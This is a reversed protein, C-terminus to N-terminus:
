RRSTRGTSRTSPSASPDPSTSRCATWACRSPWRPSCAGQWWNHRPPATCAPRSSLSNTAAWDGSSERPRSRAPWGTPWRWWCATAWRMGSRTTSTSSGSEPSGTVALDAFRVQLARRNALGTLPDIRAARARDASLRAMRQVAYLPVFILLVFAANVHAAVALVPSLLLLSAKFLTQYPLTETVRRSRAAGLRLRAAIRVMLNYALLWAAAAGAVTLADMMRDAASTKGFPDPDGIELVVYAAAFALAYEGAVLASQVFTHKLRVTVVAISLTQAVIAPGLGWCLLIAFTFCLSPCVVATYLWDSAAFAQGAALVALATMMWCAAKDYGSLVEGTHTALLTLGLGAVAVVYWTYLRPRAPRRESPLTVAVV